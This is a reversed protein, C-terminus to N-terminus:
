KQIQSIRNKLTEIQKKILFVQMENQEEGKLQPKLEVLELLLKYEISTFSKKM